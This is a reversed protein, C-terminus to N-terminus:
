FVERQAAKREHAFYGSISFYAGLKVFTPFMEASGGYSHLLFGRPPRPNTQLVDNLHGWAKLCHISAALNREAALQLQATFVKEQVAIDYDQIWRDLGIEGICAGPNADLFSRLTDFWTASREKAFWPHLGFAPTIWPFIKALAEVHPWDKECAGNVVCRQVGLAPLEACIAELAPSLREDQLHNHADYLPIM